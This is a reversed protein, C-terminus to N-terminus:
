LIIKKSECAYSGYYIRIRDTHNKFYTLIPNKNNILFM